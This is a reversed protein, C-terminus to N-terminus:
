QGDVPILTLGADDTKPKKEKKVLGAAKAHAHTKVLFAKLADDYADSKKRLGIHHKLDDLEMDYYKAHNLPALVNNVMKCGGRKLFNDVNRLSSSHYRKDQMVTM